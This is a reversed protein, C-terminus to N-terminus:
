SNIIVTRGCFPQSVVIVLELPADVLSLGICDLGVSQVTVASSFDKQLKRPAKNQQVHRDTLLGFSAWFHLNAKLMDGLDRDLREMMAKHAQEMALKDAAGEASLDRTRSMGIESSQMKYGITVRPVLLLRRM